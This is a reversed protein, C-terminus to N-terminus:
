NVDDAEGLQDAVQDVAQERHHGEKAYRHHDGNDQQVHIGLAKAGREHDNATGQYRHDPLQADQRGQAIFQIGKGDQHGEQHKGDPHTVAGLFQVTDDLIDAATGHGIHRRAISEAAQEQRTDGRQERVTDTECYQHDDLDLYDLVKGDGGTDAHQHKDEGVQDQHGDGQGIGPHALLTRLVGHDRDLALLIHVPQPTEQQRKGMAARRGHGDHNRHEHRNATEVDGLVQLDTVQVRTGRLQPGVGPVVLVHGIDDVIVRHARIDKRDDDLRRGVPTHVVLVQAQGVLQLPAQALQRTHLVHAAQVHTGTLDHGTDVLTIGLPQGHEAVLVGDVIGHVLQDGQLVHIRATRDPGHQNVQCVVLRRRQLAHDSRQLM